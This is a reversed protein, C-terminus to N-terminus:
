GPIGDDLPLVLRVLMGEGAARRDLAGGLAIAIGEAIDLGGPAPPAEREGLPATGGTDLLEIAVARGAEAPLVRLSIRAPAGPEEARRALVAARAAALLHLLAQELQVPVGRVPLPLPAAHYAVEIREAAFQRRATGAAAAVAAGADFSRAEGTARSARRMRDLLEGIRKTQALLVAAAEDVRQPDPPQGPALLRGAWLSIVNVPQSMHHALGAVVSDTAARQAEPDLGLARPVPIATGVIRAPRGVGPPLPALRVLWGARDAAAARDDWVIPEGASLCAACLRDLVARGPGPQTSGGPLCRYRFGGDRLPAAVFIRQGLALLAADMRHRALGRGALFTLLPVVFAAVVCIGFALVYGRDSAGGEWAVCLRMGAAILAVTAGALSAIRLAPQARAGAIALALALLLLALVALAEIALREAALPLPTVVVSAFASAPPM